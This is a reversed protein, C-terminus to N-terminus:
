LEKNKTQPKLMLINRIFEYEYIRLDFAMLLAEIFEAVM